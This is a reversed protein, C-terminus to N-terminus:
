VTTSAGSTPQPEARVSSEKMPTAASSLAKTRISCCLGFGRTRRPMRREGCSRRALKPAMASSPLQNPKWNMPVRYMCSRLSQDATSIARAKRGVPIITAVPEGFM